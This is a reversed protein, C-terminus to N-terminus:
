SQFGLRRSKLDKGADNIFTQSETYDSNKVRLLKGHNM